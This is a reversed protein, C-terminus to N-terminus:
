NCSMKYNIQKTAGQGQFGEKGLTLWKVGELAFCSAFSEGKKRKVGGKESYRLEWTLIFLVFIMKSSQGQGEFSAEVICEKM